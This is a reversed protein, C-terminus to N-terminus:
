QVDVLGTLDVAVTKTEGKSNTLTITAGPSANGRTQFVPTNDSVATIGLPLNIPGRFVAYDGAGPTQERQLSYSTASNFVVKFRRYQAMARTSASQLDAAIQQAASNLQYGPLLSAWFPTAIAILLSFIGIAVILEILTFGPSCWLPVKERAAGRVLFLEEALHRGLCSDM